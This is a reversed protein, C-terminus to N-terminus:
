PVAFTSIEKERVFRLVATPKGVCAVFIDHNREDHGMLHPTMCKKPDIPITQVVKCRGPGDKTISSGDLVYLFQNPKGAKINAKNKDAVALFVVIGSFLM